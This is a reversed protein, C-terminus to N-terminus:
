CIKFRGSKHAPVYVKWANVLNTAMAHQAVELQDKKNASWESKRPQPWLNKEYRSAGGISLAILHDEEYNKPINDAYGYQQIQIKEIQKHLVRAPSHNKYHRKSM